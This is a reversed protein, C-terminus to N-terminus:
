FLISSFLLLLSLYTLFNSPLPCLKSKIRVQTGKGAGPPGLLIARIANGTSEGKVLRSLDASDGGTGKEVKFIVDKPKTQAAM